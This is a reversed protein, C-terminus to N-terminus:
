RSKGQRILAEAERRLIQAELWNHLNLGFHEEARDPLSGRLEDLFNTAKNLWRSAEESKGLREQSM